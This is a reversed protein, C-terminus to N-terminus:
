GFAVKAFLQEQFYDGANYFLAVSGDDLVLIHQRWLNVREGDAQAQAPIDAVWEVPDECWRWGSYPLEEDCVAFGGLSPPPEDAWINEDEPRPATPSANAIAIWRHDRGPLIQLGGVWGSAWHGPKQEPELITGQKKPLRESSKQLAIGQASGFPSQARPQAQKPLGMYFFCLEEREAFWYGSVADIAKEDFDADGGLDILPEADLTWPGALSTAWARQAIKAELRTVLAMCYRGDVRAPVNPRYPDCVVFPKYASEGLLARPNDFVLPGDWRWSGPRIPDGDVCLAQGHGPPLAFLFMRYGGAAEDRVICPDGMVLSCDGDTNKALVLGARRWAQPITVSTRPENKAM